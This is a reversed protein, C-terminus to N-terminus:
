FHLREFHHDELALIKGVCSEGLHKSQWFNLADFSSLKQWLLGKAYAEQVVFQLTVHLGEQLAKVVFASCRVSVFVCVCCAHACTKSCSDLIGLGTSNTTRLHQWSEFSLPQIEGELGLLKEVM